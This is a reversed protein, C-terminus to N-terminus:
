ERGKQTTMPQLADNIATGLAVGGVVGFSKVILDQAHQHNDAFLVQFLELSGAFGVLLAGVIIPRRPQALAFAVGLVVYAIEREIDGSVGLHPRLRLPPLSAASIFILTLWGVLLGILRFHRRAFATIMQM